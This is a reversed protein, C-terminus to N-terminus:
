SKPIYVFYKKDDDALTTEEARIIKKERMGQTEVMVPLQKKTFDFPELIVVQEFRVPNEQDTQKEHEIYAVADEHTACEHMDWERTDYFGQMLLYLRHYSILRPMHDAPLGLFQELTPMKEIDAQLRLKVMDDVGTEIDDLTIVGRDVALKLMGRLAEDTRKNPRNSLEAM